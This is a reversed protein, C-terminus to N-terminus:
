NLNFNIDKSINNISINIIGIGNSKIYLKGENNIEIINQTKSTFVVKETIGNINLIKNGIALDGNNKILIQKSDYRFKISSKNNQELFYITREGYIISIKKNNIELNEKNTHDNYLPKIPINGIQSCGCFLFLIITFKIM